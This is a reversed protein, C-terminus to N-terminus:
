YLLSVMSLGTCTGGTNEMNENCICRGELRSMNWEGSSECLVNLSGQVHVSDATCSGNIQISQLDNSPALTQPLSVLSDALTKGPCVNFTVKVSFLTRCGGQDRFGLVIFKSKIQLPITLNTQGVTQGSINAFQRYSSNDNIPHPVQDSQVKNDSEWVYVNFFKKCFSNVSPITSCPTVSYRVTVDVRQVDGVDIQKSLLWSNPEQLINDAFDCVTYRNVPSEPTSRRGWWQPFM